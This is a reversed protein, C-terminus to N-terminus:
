LGGLGMFRVCGRVRFLIFSFFSVEDGVREGGDECAIGVVGGRGYTWGGDLVDEDIAACGTGLRSPPNQPENHKPDPLRTAVSPPHFLRARDTSNLLSSALLAPAPLPAIPSPSPSTPLTPSTSSTAPIAPPSTTLM